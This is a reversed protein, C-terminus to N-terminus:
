HRSNSRALERQQIREFVRERERQLLGAPFQRAHQMLVYRAHGLEDAEVAAVARGILETEEAL